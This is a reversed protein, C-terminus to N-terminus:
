KYITFPQRKKVTPSSSPHTDMTSVLASCSGVESYVSAMVGGLALHSACLLVINSMAHALTLICHM